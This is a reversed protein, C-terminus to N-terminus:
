KKLPNSILLAEFYGKPVWSPSQVTNCPSKKKCTSLIPVSLAPWLCKSQTWMFGFHTNSFHFICDLWHTVTDVCSWFASNAPHRRDVRLDFVPFWFPGRLSFGTCLLFGPYLIPPPPPPSAWPGLVLSPVSSLWIRPGTIESPNGLGSSLSGLDQVKM